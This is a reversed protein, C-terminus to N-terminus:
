VRENREITFKRLRTINNPLASSERYIDFGAEGYFFADIARTNRVLFVDDGDNGFASVVDTFASLLDLDDSGIGLQLHAVRTNSNNVTLTDHGAGVDVVLRDAIASVNVNDNGDITSIFLREDVSTNVIEVRDVLVDTVVIFDLNVDMSNIFVRARGAADDIVLNDDVVLGLVSVTDNGGGPLITLQGAFEVNAGSGAPREMFITDDAAGSNLVGTDQVHLDSLQFHDAGGGGLVRLDGQVFLPGSPTGAFRGQGAITGRGTTIDDNGAAGDVLLDGPVVLNTVRVVDNGGRMRIFVDGTVGSFTRLANAGGNVSTPGGADTFGRVQIVGQGASEVTITNGADDGTVLLDGEANVFANVNGAMLTRNELREVVFKNAHRKM